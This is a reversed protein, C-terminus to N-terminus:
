LSFRLTGIFQRPASFTGYVFGGVTVAQQTQTNTGPLLAPAGSGTVEPDIYKSSVFNLPNIASFSISANKVKNNFLRSPLSYSLTINRIKLYNADEVWVQALNFFNTGAAAPVRDDGIGNAFRLTENPNAIEAGQQYDGSVYLSLGKKYTLNLGLSGYLDPLPKGLYANNEVSALSGDAAFTPKGGRLYGVPQGEKVFPGLFTFGGIGFEPAGGSSLVKNKTTNASANVSLEFNDTSLVQVNASIELGKNSIEGLNRTQNDEGTSAAFPATFLADVTKADFYTLGISIKDNLLRLDTGFELTKTREPKLNDDGPQGPQFAPQNNYPSVLVLRDRTFPPPFNGAEGYTVRLKAFSVVNKIDEMFSESSLVYSIGAKPFYQGGVDKGFATNYDVRLGLDLYYRDKFGMNEAAYFGYNVVTSVFDTASRTGSNISKIGDIVGTSTILSQRDFDRFFQSGVTTIFSWSGATKNWQANLSGTTSLFNRDAVNINGQNTTGPAVSGQAILYANTQINRQRSFRYDLGITANITVDHVPNYIFSHSNQFRLINEHWDTLRAVDEVLKEVEQRKTEDWNAPNGHQGQEIGYLRDFSSNANQLRTFGNSAFAASLNYNTKANLKANLSGRLNYRRQTYGETFSNDDYINGSFSYTLAESGGSAGIRYSQIFGPRFGIESTEKFKLFDRTGQISGLQTEFTFASQGAKGRKTFIQIVGNAADSGYLTTAAGGKVFEIREIDEVPIDSLASSQAGGTGLSLASATNLNDVRVGDIYIVPTTSKLASVIGRSRIISTTGPAGSSLNIQTNPLQSQLLQDLRIMPVNKLKEATVVDVTTAIRDREMGAGQGTVIIESLQKADASMQIDVVTAGDVTREVTTYGVFSFVLVSGSRPISVTYNGDVDTVAGTATGKVVVNVGPLSAGDEESTVKGTVVKEQAWVQGWTFMLCLIKLLLFKRM